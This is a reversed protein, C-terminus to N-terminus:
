RRFFAFVVYALWILIIFPAFIFGIIFHRFFTNERNKETIMGYFSGFILCFILYYNIM